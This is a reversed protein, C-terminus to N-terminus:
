DLVTTRDPDAEIQYTQFTPESNRSTQRRLKVTINMTSIQSRAKHMLDLKLEINSPHPSRKM